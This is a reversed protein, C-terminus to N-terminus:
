SCWRLDEWGPLERDPSGITGGHGLVMPWSPDESYTWGSALLGTAMLVLLAIGQQLLTPDLVQLLLVGLPITTVAAGGLPLVLSWRCNRYAEPVLRVSAVIELVIMVPLGVRPGLLLALSPALVLGAGFGSFGRVVGAIGTALLLGVWIEPSYQSGIM